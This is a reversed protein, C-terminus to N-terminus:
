KPRLKQKLEATNKKALKAESKQRSIKNKKKREMEEMAKIVELEEM